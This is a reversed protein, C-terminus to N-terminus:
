ILNRQFKILVFVVQEKEFIIILFDKLSNQGWFAKKKLFRVNVTRSLHNKDWFTM